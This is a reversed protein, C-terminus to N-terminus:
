TTGARIIENVLATLDSLWAAASETDPNTAAPMLREAQQLSQL